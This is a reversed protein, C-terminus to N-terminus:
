LTQQQKILSASPDIHRFIQKGVFGTLIFYIYQIERLDVFM